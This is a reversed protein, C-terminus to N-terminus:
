RLTPPCYFKDHVWHRSVVTFVWKVSNLLAREVFSLHLAEPKAFGNTM